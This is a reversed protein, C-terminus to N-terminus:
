DDKSEGIEDLYSKVKHYEKPLMVKVKVIYGIIVFVATLLIFIITTQDLTILRGFMRLTALLVFPVIFYSTIHWKKGFIELRLIEKQIQLVSETCDVKLLRIYYYINIAYSIIIFMSFFIVSLYFWVSGDNKLHPFIILAFILPIYICPLVLFILRKVKIRNFSSRLKEHSVNKNVKVSETIRKDEKKWYHRLEEIEM